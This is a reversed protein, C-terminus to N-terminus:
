PIYNQPPLSLLEAKSVNVKSCRQFLWTPIRLLCNFKHTQLGSSLGPSSVFKLIMLLCITACTMHHILDDWIKSTLFVSLCSVLSVFPMSGVLLQSLVALSISSFDPSHTVSALNFLIQLLFFYDLTDYAALSDFLILFLFHSSFKAILHNSVKM